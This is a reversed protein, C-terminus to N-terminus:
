SSNCNLLVGMNLISLMQSFYKGKVNSDDGLRKTRATVEQAIPLPESDGRQTWAKLILPSIESSLERTEWDRSRNAETIRIKAAAVVALTKGQIKDNSPENIMFNFLLIFCFSRRFIVKYEELKWEEEADKGEM